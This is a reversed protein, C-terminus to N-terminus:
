WAIYMVDQGLELLFDYRPMIADRGGYGIEDYEKTAENYRFLHYM